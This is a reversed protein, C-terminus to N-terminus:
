NKSAKVCKLVNGANTIALIQQEGFGKVWIGTVNNNGQLLLGSASVGTGNITVVPGNNNCNSAEGLKVNNRIVPLASAVNITTNGPPLSFRIVEGAQAEQLARRLTGCDNTDFSSTVMLTDCGGQSISLQITAQGDVPPTDRYKGVVIYYTTGAVLTRVVQSQSGCSDDNIGITTWGNGITPATFIGIVTDPMTTGPAASQCTEVKYSGTVDPNFSYWVSRSYDTGSIAPDPGPNGGTTAGSINLPTTTYPFPGTPPVAIANSAVDNSPASLKSVSIQITGEGEKPLANGLTGAMIYYTVGSDLSVAVSSQTAVGCFADDNYGIQTWPGGPGGTFVGIVTDPVSTATASNVCTEFRYGGSSSPTFTYWITRGVPVPLVPDPGPNNGTTAETIFVSATLYPFPGGAPITVAQSAKDNSPPAAVAGPRTLFFFLISFVVVLVLALIMRLRIAALNSSQWLRMKNQM